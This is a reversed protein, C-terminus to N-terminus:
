GDSGTIEFRAGGDESDTLSVDWGHNRAIQEVINLGLGTGDRATSYGVSFVEERQGEPIGVGDDAVYFGDDLSGVTIRDTTEGHEVANRLLNEFLIKLRSADAPFRREAEVTLTVDDSDVFSWADRAMTELDVTPPDDAVNCERALTLADEIIDEMRTLSRDLRDVHDNDIGDARFLDVSSQAVNLPNRLDHSVVSAFSELRETQRDLDHQYRKRQTIDRVILHFSEDGGAMRVPIVTTRFYRDGHSDESSRPEGADIAEQGLELRNQGVEEPFTETLSSGVFNEQSTDLLEAMASNAALVTGDRDVHAVPDPHDAVLREYATRTRDRSVLREIRRALRDYRGDETIELRLLYDASGSAIAEGPLEIEERDILFVFPVNRSRERLAERFEPGDMGPMGLNTVICDVDVDDLTALASEASTASVTEIGHDTELREATTAVSESDDVVLTRIPGATTVDL